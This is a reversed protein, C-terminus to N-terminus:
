ANDEGENNMADEVLCEQCLAEGDDNFGVADLDCKRAECKQNGGGDCMECPGANWVDPDNGGYRSKWINGEGACTPCPITTM